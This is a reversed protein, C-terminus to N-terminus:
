KKRVPYRIITLYTTPDGAFFMGSSRLYEEEHEGSIEYGSDAIFKHLRAVTTTETAYSGVHLIEAVTGGSWTTLTPNIAGAGTTTEPLNTIGSPVPLAFRGLWESRPTEVSKPWRALIAPAKGNKSIGPLKYYTKFLAACGAKVTTTPDGTLEVLIVQQPLREALRPEKLYEVDKLKPGKPGGIFWFIIAAVVALLAIIILYKM